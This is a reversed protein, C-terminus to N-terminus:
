TNVRGIIWSTSPQSNTMRAMQKMATATTCYRNPPIRSDPGPRFIVECAVSCSDSSTAANTSSLATCYQYSRYSSSNELRPPVKM